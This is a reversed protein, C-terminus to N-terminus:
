AKVPLVLKSSLGQERNGYGATNRQHSQSPLSPSTYPLHLPFYPPTHLPHHLSTSIHLFPLHNPPLHLFPITYPTPLSVSPAPLFPFHLSLIPFPHRLSTIPSSLLSTYSPSQTPFPSPPTHPYIPTPFPLPPLPLPIRPNPHSNPHGALWAAARSGVLRAVYCNLYKGKRRTGNVEIVVLLLRALM